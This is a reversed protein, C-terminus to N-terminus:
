KNLDDLGRIGGQLRWQQIHLSNIFGLVGVKKRQTNKTDLPLRKPNKKVKNLRSMILLTIQLEKCAKYRPSLRYKLNLNNWIPKNVVVFPWLTCVVTVPFYKVAM